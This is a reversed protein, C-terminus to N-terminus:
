DRAVSPERGNGFLPSRRYPAIRQMKREILPVILVNPVSLAQGFDASRHRLAHNLDSVRYRLGCDSARFVQAPAGPVSLTAGIEVNVPGREFRRPRRSESMWGPREQRLFRATM